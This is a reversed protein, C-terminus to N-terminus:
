FFVSMGLVDEISLKAKFLRRRTKMKTSDFEEDLPRLLVALILDIADVNNLKEDALTQEITIIHGLKIKSPDKDLLYKVGDITVEDILKDIPPKIIFSLAEAIENANSVTIYEKADDIDNGFIRLMSVYYDSIDKFSNPDLKSLVQYEGLTVDAWETPISIEM